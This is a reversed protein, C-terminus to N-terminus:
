GSGARIRSGVALRALEREQEIYLFEAEASSIEAFRLERGPRLQAIVRLDASAIQAIRPYGGTTQRDATLVIPGGGPPVQVTGPAVAESIMELPESLTLSPGSLRCGMRDSQPTVRFAESLLASRSGADFLGFHSGRTFRVVAPGREAPSAKLGAYVRAGPRPEFGGAWDPRGTVYGHAAYWGAAAFSAGPAPGGPLRPQRRPAAGPTRTHLVDGARLARGERGGFGARLDTGRGGLVRPARFGGALALYARCGAQATGFELVAGAAVRVPRWLPVPEGGITPTLDGGAIAILAEREFRLALGSLTVEIAAEGDANGALLNAARLAYADMAGGPTVGYAQFGPRGTDQLTSLM